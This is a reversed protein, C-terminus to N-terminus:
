PAEERPIKKAAESSAFEKRLRNFAVQAKTEAGLKRYSIGLKLLADPVKASAPFRALLGELQAVASAHDGIAAYCEGRWYQANAAYPHDPWRVLFSALSDLALKYKKAKVQAIAAEYDVLAKPDIGGSAAKKSKKASSPAGGEDPFTEEVTGGPGIRLFPRPSADDDDASDGAPSAVSISSAAVPEDEPALKVVRIPRPKDSAVVPEKDAAAPPDSRRLAEREEITEVRKSLADHEREVRALESRMLAMDQAGGGCASCLSLLSPFALAAFWARRLSGKPPMTNSRVARRSAPGFGLCLWHEEAGAASALRLAKM